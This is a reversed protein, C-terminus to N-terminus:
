YKKSAPDIVISLDSAVSRDTDLHDTLKLNRTEMKTINRLYFKLHKFIRRCVPTLRTAVQIDHAM